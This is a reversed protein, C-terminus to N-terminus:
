IFPIMCYTAKETQSRESLMNELNMWVATYTLIENRRLPILVGNTHIYWMCANM